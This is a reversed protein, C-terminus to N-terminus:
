SKNRVQVRIALDCFIGFCQWLAKSYLRRVKLVVLSLVRLVISQAPKKEQKEQCFSQSSVDSFKFIVIGNCKCYDILIRTHLSICLLMEVDEAHTPPNRFQSFQSIKASDVTIKHMNERYMHFTTFKGVLPIVSHPQGFFM